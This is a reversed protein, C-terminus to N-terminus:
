EKRFEVRRNRSRGEPTANDDVPRSSGFCRSANLAATIPESQGYRGNRGCISLAIVLRRAPHESIAHREVIRALLREPFLKM